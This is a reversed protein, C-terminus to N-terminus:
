VGSNMGPPPLGLTDLAMRVRDKVPMVPIHVLSFGSKIYIDEIQDRIALSDTRNSMRGTEGREAFIEEPLTELLLVHDYHGENAIKIVVEPIDDGFHHCYALGDFRGRDLFTAHMGPSLEAENKAQRRAVLEQFEQRHTRRWTKQEEVGLRENLEAIVAIAAEPVTPYGLHSFAEVLTTKGSGPGGTVVVIM